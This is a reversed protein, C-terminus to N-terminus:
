CGLAKKMWEYAAFQIAAGPVARVTNTWSGKFFGRVGENQWIMATCHISNRYVRPAGGAGNNQM